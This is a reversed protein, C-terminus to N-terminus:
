MLRILHWVDTRKISTLLGNLLSLKEGFTIPEKLLCQIDELFKQEDEKTPLEHETYYDMLENYYDGLGNGLEIKAVEIKYNEM